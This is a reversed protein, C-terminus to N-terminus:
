VHSGGGAAVAARAMIATAIQAEIVALEMMESM